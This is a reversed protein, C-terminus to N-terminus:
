RHLLLEVVGALDENGHGDAVRRRMLTLLPDFLETGVGQARSLDGIADHSVQMALDSGTATYDGSDVQAAMGPLIGAIARLWPVLHDTTFREVPAGASRVLAAAHLFGGLMGYMGTLLALDALPALGPDEGLYSGRGLADLVDRWSAYAAASGSCLLLAGPTGIMSPVAMVGCDLYDAGLAAARGAMSRGEAPSGNTVNLVTRGKLAPGARDLLEGVAPYDRVCVIVLDAAGAAAEVTAAVAAGREAPGATRAATRNWVTVRHGAALLADALATGMNGLGLVAVSRSERRGAEAETGRGTEPM